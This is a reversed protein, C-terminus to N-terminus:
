FGEQRMMRWYVFKAGAVAGLFIFAMTLISGLSLTSIGSLGQGINCGMAVVAGFGMLLGGFLNNKFQELPPAVWRFTGSLLSATLAGAVVGFVSSIAFNITEGTWLIIYRFAQADALAFTLSKPRWAQLLVPDDAGTFSFSDILPIAKFAVGNIWWGSVIVLGVALGSLPWRWGWWLSDKPAKLMFVALVTEIVLVILWSPVGSLLEPIYQSKMGLAMRDLVDVRIYATIGWLAAGSSLIFAMVSVLGGLNGESARVLIRGACGGAYVIGVGFIFGGAIYSVWTFPSSIYISYGIDVFGLRYLIQTGLISVFLAMAYARTQTLDMTTAISHCASAICFQSRQVVAGLISGTIFGSLIVSRRIADKIGAIEGDTLSGADIGAYGMIKFILFVTWLFGAVILMIILGEQVRGKM